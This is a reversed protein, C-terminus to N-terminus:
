SSGASRQNIDGSGRRETAEAVQGDAPDDFDERPPNGRCHWAYRSLACINENGSLMHGEM